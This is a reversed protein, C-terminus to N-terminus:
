SAERAKFHLITATRMQAGYVRRQDERSINFARASHEHEDEEDEPAVCGPMTRPERIAAMELLDAQTNVLRVQERPIGALRKVEGAFGFAGPESIETM